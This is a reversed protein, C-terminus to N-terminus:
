RDRGPERPNLDLLGDPLRVDIRGAQRDVRLVIAPALPVLVEAATGGRPVRGETRVVLLDTGGTPMLGTVTGITGAKEDRVELGLLQDTYYLNEPLEPADGSAVLVRSGKLRAARGADDIGELKLVLRDRYARAERVEFEERSGNKEEVRIRAVESWFAADGGFVKVTLEGGAGRHGTIRGVVLLDGRDESSSRSCM